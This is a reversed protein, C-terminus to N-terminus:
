ILSRFRGFLTRFLSAGSLKCTLRLLSLHTLCAGFSLLCVTLFDDGLTGGIVLCACLVGFHLLQWALYREQRNLPNFVLIPIVVCRLFFAPSLVQAYRGADAWQPGFVFSFLWSGSLGLLLFPGAAWLSLRSGTSEVLAALSGSARYEEVSRQYFVQRVSQVVLELPVYVTRFGLDYLGVVGAGFLRALVFVPLAHGAFELLSAWLHFRPFKGYTCLVEKWSRSLFKLGRFRHSGKVAWAAKAVECTIAGAVLGAATVPFVAAWALKTSAGTVSGMVRSGAMRDYRRTRSLWMELGRNGALLLVGLPAWWLLPALAPAGMAAAVAPAGSLMLGALLVLGTCASFVLSLVLLTWAERDDGPLMIGAEYSLSSVLSLVMTASVYLALIGYDDPSYIRTLVPALGINVAQALSTGTFLRGVDAGFGKRSPFLRVTM